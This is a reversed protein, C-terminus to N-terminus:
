RDGQLNDLADPRQDAESPLGADGFQFLMVHGCHKCIRAHPLGSSPIHSLVRILGYGSLAYDTSTCAPCTERVGRARLWALFRSRTEPNLEQFDLPESM